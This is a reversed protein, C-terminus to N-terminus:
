LSPLSPRQWRSLLWNFTLNAFAIVSMIFSLKPGQQRHDYGGREVDALSMKQKKLDQAFEIDEPFGKRGANFHVQCVLRRWIERSTEEGVKNKELTAVIM